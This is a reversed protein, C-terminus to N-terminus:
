WCRVKVFDSFLGLCRVVPQMVFVRNLETQIKKVDKEKENESNRQSSLVAYSVQRYLYHNKVVGRLDEGVM